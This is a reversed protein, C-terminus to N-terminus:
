LNYLYAKFNFLFNLSFNIERLTKIYNDEFFIYIKKEKNFREKLLSAITSKGRGSLETLGCFKKNENDLDKEKTTCM